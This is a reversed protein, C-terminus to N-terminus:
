RIKYRHDLQIMINKFPIPLWFDSSGIMFNVTVEMCEAWTGNFVGDSSRWVYFLGKTTKLIKRMHQQEIGTLTQCKRKSSWDLFFSLLHLGIGNSHNSLLFSLFQLIIRMSSCAHISLHSILNEDDPNFTM